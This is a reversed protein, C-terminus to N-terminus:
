SLAPAGQGGFTRARGRWAKQSARRRKELISRGIFVEAVGQCPTAPESERVPGSQCDAARNSLTSPVRDVLPRLWQLQRLTHAAILRCSFTKCPCPRGLGGSARFRFSLFQLLTITLACRTRLQRFFNAIAPIASAIPSAITAAPHPPADFVVGAAPPPAVTTPTATVGVVALTATPFVCANVAVTEFSLAFLPTVHATEQAVALPQPDSDAVVLAEPAAVVYVAGAATGFGAVTVIVAVDTASPVFDADAVIVIVAPAAAPTATESECVVDVTSALPVTFKVAVTVPSEAFLPTVQASAPAPHLAAVHPVKDAVLLADAVAIVYVAGVATGEGAVTVNVAVDAASAVFDAIAVIV